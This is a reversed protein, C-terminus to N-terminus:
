DLFLKMVLALGIFTWAITALIVAAWAFGHDPAKRFARASYILGLPMGLM